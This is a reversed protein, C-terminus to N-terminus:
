KKLQIINTLLTCQDIQKQMTDIASSSKYVKHVLLGNMVVLLVITFFSIVKKYSFNKNSIDYENKNDFIGNKIFYLITFFIKM